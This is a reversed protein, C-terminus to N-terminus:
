GELATQLERAARAENEWEEHIVALYRRKYAEHAEEKTRFTNGVHKKGRWNFKFYFGYKEATNRYICRYGTMNMKVGV